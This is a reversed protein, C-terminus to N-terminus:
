GQLDALTQRGTPTVGGYTCVLCGCAQRADRLDFGDADGSVVDALSVSRTCEDTM